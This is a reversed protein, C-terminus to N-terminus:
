DKVAVVKYFLQDFLQLAGYHTYSTGNRVTALLLYDALNESPETSFYIKYGSAIMPNNYIDQNVASWSILIDNPGSAQTELSIQQPAAPPHVIAFNRNSGAYVADTVSDKIQVRATSTSIDPLVWAYSELSPNLDEAIVSWNNGGDISYELSVGNVEDDGATWLIDQVSTALYSIGGVFTQLAIAQIISFDYNSVAYYDDNGVDTIRVKVTNCNIDPLNWQYGYPESGLSAAVPNNEILSWNQGDISYYLYVQPTLSLNKVSWKISATESNLYTEGGTMTNLQFPQYISFSGSIASVSADANRVRVKSEDCTLQPVRWDYVGQAAPVADPTIPLWTGGADTSYDLFVQSLGSANWYIQSLQNSYLSTFNNEDITVQEIMPIQQPYTQKAVYLDKNSTGTSTISMGSAFTVTGIFNGNWYVSGNQGAVVSTGIDNYTSGVKQAFFIGGNQADMGVIFADSASSPSSSLTYSGFTASGKFEGTLYVNFADTSIGWGVDYNSGGACKGWIGNGDVDYKVVFADFGGYAPILGIGDFDTDNQMTGTAYINNNADVAIDYAFENGSGEGKRAWLWTGNTDLKAVFMEFSSNTESNALVISGPVPNNNADVEGFIINDSAFSGCIYVNNNTDLAIRQASENNLGIAKKAWIFDGAANMKAVFVDNYQLGTIGGPLPPFVAGGQFTGCIYANSESDVVIGNGIDSNRYGARKAWLWTGASDLKAVFVDNSTGNRLLYLTNTSGFYITTSNYVGTVYVNGLPDVDVGTGYESNTGGARAAWLVTGSPDLKAVFVDYTGFTTSRNPLTFSGITTTSVYSGTIYTNGESDTAIAAAEEAYQGGAKMAWNWEPTQAYIM